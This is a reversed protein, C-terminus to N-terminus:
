ELLKAQIPGFLCVEFPAYTKRVWGANETFAGGACFANLDRVGDFPLKFSFDVPEASTNAAILYYGRAGGGSKPKSEFLALAVRAEFIDNHMAEPGGHYVMRAPWWDVRRSFIPANARLEAGLSLLADRLAPHEELNWSTDRWAYFFIGSAGQMLALYSMCRVEEPSPPRLPDAHRLLHPFKSWDFAQIVAFFEGGRLAARALRMERAITALPSWNVPYWDVALLEAVGRYKEVSSGASLIVMVPKRAHQALRRKERSVQAPSVRHLDPEDFLFWSWLAPHADLTKIQEPVGQHSAASPLHPNALVRLGHQRAADLVARDAPAAVVNFGADALAPFAEPPPYFMGVQFERTRHACGAACLAAFLAAFWALLSARHKM